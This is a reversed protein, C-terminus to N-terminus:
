VEKSLMMKVVPEKMTANLYAAKHDLTMIHDGRHAAIAAHAIVATLSVTPSSTKQETYLSRDQRHGGAVLRAKMKDFAGSPLKKLTLFMKSPIADRTNETPSLGKIVEKTICHMLEVTIADKVINEGYVTAATKITLTAYVHKVMTFKRLDYGNNMENRMLTVESEVEEDDIQKVEEEDNQIVDGVDESKHNPEAQDTADVEPEAEDVAAVEPGAEDVAHVEAKGM